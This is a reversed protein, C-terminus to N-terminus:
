MTRTVKSLAEPQDANYGKELALHMAFLQGPLVATLPTLWEPVGQTIPLPFNALALTAPDDSIVLREAGKEKLNAILDFLDQHVAGQPAVVLVPFGPQATAIPGHRFDASSYPEAVV